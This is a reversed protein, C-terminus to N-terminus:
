RRRMWRRRRLFLWIGGGTEQPPTVDGEGGGGYNMPIIGFPANGGSMRGRFYIIM